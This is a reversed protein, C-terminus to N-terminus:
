IHYDILMHIQVYICVYKYTHTHTNYNQSRTKLASGRWRTEPSEVNMVTASVECSRWPVASFSGSWLLTSIWAKM